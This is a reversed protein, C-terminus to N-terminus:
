SHEGGCVSTYMLKMAVVQDARRLNIPEVRTLALCEEVSYQSIAHRRGIGDVRIPIHPTHTLSHTLSHEGM